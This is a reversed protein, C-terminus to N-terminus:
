TFKIDREIQMRNLLVLRDVTNMEMQYKSVNQTSANGSDM